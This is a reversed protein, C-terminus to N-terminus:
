EACEQSFGMKEFLVRQKEERTTDASLYTQDGLDQMLVSILDILSEKFAGKGEHSLPNPELSLVISPFM